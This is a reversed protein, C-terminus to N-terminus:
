VPPFQGAVNSYALIIPLDIKNCPTTTCLHANLSTNSPIFSHNCTAIIPPKPNPPIRVPNRLQLENNKCVQHIFKTYDRQTYTALQLRLWVPPNAGEEHLVSDLQHDKEPSRHSWWLSPQRVSPRPHELVWVEHRLDGRPMRMGVVVHGGDPCMDIDIAISPLLVNPGISDEGISECLHLICLHSPDSHDRCIESNKWM